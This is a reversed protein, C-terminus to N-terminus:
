NVLFIFKLLSFFPDETEESYILNNYRNQITESPILVSFTTHIVKLMISSAHTHALSRNGSLVHKTIYQVPARRKM